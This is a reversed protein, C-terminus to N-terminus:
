AQEDRWALGCQVMDTASQARRLGVYSVTLQAQSPLNRTPRCLEHQDATCIAALRKKDRVVQPDSDLCRSVWAIAQRVAAPANQDALRYYIWRGEKRGDM